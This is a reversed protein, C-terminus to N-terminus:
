LIIRIPKNISEYNRNMISANVSIGGWQNQTKGYSEHIHGFVHLSIQPRTLIKHCLSKSGCRKFSKAYPLAPIHEQAEDLIGFPPSHTILIDIEEPFLDWKEDLKEEPIM